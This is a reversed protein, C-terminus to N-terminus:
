IPSRYSWAWKLRQWRSGFQLEKYEDVFRKPYLQGNDTKVVTMPPFLIKDTLKAIRQQLKECNECSM